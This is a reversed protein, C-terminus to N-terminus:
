IPPKATGALEARLSAIRREAVAVQEANGAMASKYREFLAIAAERDTRATLVAQELLLDHRTPALEYAIQLVEIAQPKRAEDAQLVHALDAYDDATATGRAVLLEFARAADAFRANRSGLHGLRRLLADDVSADAHTVAEHLFHRAWAKQKRQELLTAAYLGECTPSPPTRNICKQLRVLAGSVDGADASASAAAIAAALEAPGLQTATRPPPPDTEPAVFPTDVKEREPASVIASPDDVKTPAPAESKCGALLLLAWGCRARRRAFDSAHM